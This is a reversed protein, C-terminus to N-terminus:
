ERELKPIRRHAITSDATKLIVPDGFPSPWLLLLYHEDGERGLGAACVRVRFSGPPLKLRATPRVRGDALVIEGTSALSCEVVHEWGDSSEPPAETLLRVSVPVKSKRATAVRLVLGNGAVRDDVEEDEVSEAADPEGCIRADFLFFRHQDVPVVTDFRQNPLRALDTAASRLQSLGYVLGILVLGGALWWVAQPRREAAQDGMWPDNWDDGCSSM